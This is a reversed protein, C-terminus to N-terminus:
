QRSSNLGGELSVPQSDLTEGTGHRWIRTHSVTSTHGRNYQTERGPHYQRIPTLEDGYNRYIESILCILTIFDAVPGKERSPRTNGRLRTFNTRTESVSFRIDSLNVAGQPGRLRSTTMKILTDKSSAHKGRFSSELQCARSLSARPARQRTFYQFPANLTGETSSSPFFLHPRM